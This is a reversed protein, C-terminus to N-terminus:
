DNRGYRDREQLYRWLSSEVSPARLKIMFQVLDIGRKQIEYFRASSEDIDGPVRWSESYRGESVDELLERLDKGFLAVALRIMILQRETAMGRSIRESIDDEGLVQALSERIAMDFGLKLFSYVDDSISPRGEIQQREPYHMDDLMRINYELLENFRYRLQSIELPFVRRTGGKMDRRASPYWILFPEESQSM